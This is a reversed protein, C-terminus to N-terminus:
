WQRTRRNRPKFKWGVRRVYEKQLMILKDEQTGDRTLMAISNELHGLGMETLPTCKGDSSRWVYTGILRRWVFSEVIGLLKIISYGIKQVLTLASWNDKKM